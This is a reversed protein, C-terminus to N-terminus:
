EKRRRDKQIKDSTGTRANCNRAVTVSAKRLIEGRWLYGRWNVSTITGDPVDDREEVRDAAVVGPPASVLDIEVVNERGLIEAM